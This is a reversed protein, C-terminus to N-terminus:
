ENHFLDRESAVIVDVFGLQLAKEGRFTQGQLNQRDIQRRAQVDAIFDEYSEAVDALRQQRQEESIPAGFFAGIAKFQGGVVPIVEVGQNEAMRSADVMPSGFVGVGGVRASLTAAFHDAAIALKFAASTAMYDTYALTEGPYNAIVAQCEDCGVAMGGPSQIHFLLPPAGNAEFERIEATIEDYDTADILDTPQLAKGLIGTVPIVGVGMEENYYAGRRVVPQGFWAVGPQRMAYVNSVMQWGEPSLMQPESILRLFGNM